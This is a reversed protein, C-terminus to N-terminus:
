GVSRVGSVTGVSWLTFSLERYGLGVGGLAAAEDQAGSLADVLGREGCEQVRGRVRVKGQVQLAGWGSGIGVLGTLEYNM